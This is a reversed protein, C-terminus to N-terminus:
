RQVAYLIRMIETGAQAAGIGASRKGDDHRSIAGGLQIGGHTLDRGTGGFRRGDHRDDIQDTKQIQQLFRIDPDDASIGSCRLQRVLHVQGGTQHQYQTRLARPQAM